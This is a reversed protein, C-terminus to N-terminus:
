GMAYESEGLGAGCRGKIAPALKAADPGPFSTVWTPLAGGWEVAKAAEPQSEVTTSCGSALVFDGNRSGRYYEL